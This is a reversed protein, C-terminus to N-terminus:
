PAAVELSLGPTPRFPSIEASGMALRSSMAISTTCGQGM